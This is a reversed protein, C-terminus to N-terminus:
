LWWIWGDLEAWAWGAAGSAAAPKDLGGAWAFGVPSGLLAAAACGAVAAALADALAAPHLRTARAASAAGALAAEEGMGVTGALCGAFGQLCRRSKDSIGTISRQVSFHFM